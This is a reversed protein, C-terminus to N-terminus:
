ERRFAPIYYKAMGIRGHGLERTIIRLAETEGVREKLDDFRATSYTARFAHTGCYIEGRKDVAKRVADTYEKQLASWDTGNASLWADVTTAANVILAFENPRDSFDIWRDRGGKSKLISVIVNAPDKVVSAIVKKIDSVRAGTGFQVIALARFVDGKMAEVVRLGDTFAQTRNSEGARASWEVRHGDICCLLDNRSFARFLKCLAAVNLRITKERVRNALLNEFHQEVHSPTIQHIRRVDTLVTDRFNNIIGVYREFTECSHIYPSYGGSNKRVLRKSQGIGQKFYTVTKSLAYILGSNARLNPVQPKEYKM